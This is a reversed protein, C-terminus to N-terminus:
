EGAQEGKKRTYTIEGVKADEGLSLDYMEFVIKDRDVIRMVFRGLKDQEGTAPEDMQGYYTIAKRARDAMGLSTMMATGMNDIWFSTYKKKFNDYGNIGMGKFPMGMFESSAEQLVFRGDLIWRSEATGKSELVESGPGSMWFKMVIDWKGVLPELAKHAEGPTAFEMWKKMMEEMDIAPPEAAKAKPKEAEKQAPKAKEADKTKKEAKPKEQKSQKEQSLVRGALLASAVVLIVGCSLAQLKM